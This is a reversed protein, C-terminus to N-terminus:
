FSGTDTTIVTMYRTIYSPNALTSGAITLYLPQKAAYGSGSLHLIGARADVVTIIATGEAHATGRATMLSSALCLFVLILIGLGLRSRRVPERMNHVGEDHRM